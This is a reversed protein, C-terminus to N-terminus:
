KKKKLLESEAINKVAVAYEKPVVKNLNIRAARGIYDSGVNVLVQKAIQKGSDKLIEAVVQKGSKRDSGIAQAYRRELDMREIARRLETDTMRRNKPNSKLSNDRKIESVKTKGARKLARQTRRSNRNSGDSGSSSSSGSKSDSDVVTVRGRGRRDKRVGWKMGKIGYHVIFDDSMDSHKIKKKSDPVDPTFSVTFRKDKKKLLKSLKEAESATMNNKNVVVKYVSDDLDKGYKKKLDPISDLIEEAIEEATKEKSSGGPGSSNSDKVTVRSKRVGWKMGKVGYHKFWNSGIERLDDFTNSM